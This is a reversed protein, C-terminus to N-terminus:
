SPQLNTKVSLSESFLVHQIREVRKLSIVICLRYLFTSQYNIAHLSVSCGSGAFVVFHLMGSTSGGCLIELCSGYSRRQQLSIEEVVLGAAKVPYESLSSTIIDACQLVAVNLVTMEAIKGKAHITKLLVSCHLKGHWRSKNIKYALRM